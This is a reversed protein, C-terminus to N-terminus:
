ASTQASIRSIMTPRRLHVMSRAPGLRPGASRTATSLHCDTCTAEAITHAAHFDDRTQDHHCAACLAEDTLRLAQSHSMHCGICQVGAQAHRSDEWQAFTSAHCDACISSDVTLTMPDNKPHDSTYQGHCVECTAGPLGDDVTVSKAHVSNQWAETEDEHCKACKDVGAPQPPDALTLSPLGLGLLLALSAISILRRTPGGKFIAFLASFM